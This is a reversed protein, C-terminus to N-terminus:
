DHKIIFYMAVYPPMVKIPKPESLGATGTLEGAISNGSSSTTVTEGGDTTISGALAATSNGTTGGDLVHYHDLETAGTTGAASTADIRHHHDMEETNNAMTVVVEDSLDFAGAGSVTHTHAASGAPPDRTLQADAAGNGGASDDVALEINLDGSIGHTHESDATDITIGLSDTDIDHTHAGVGTTGTHSHTGGAGTDGTLTHEHTDSENDSVLDNLTHTHTASNTDISGSVSHFHGGASYTYQGNGSGPFITTDDDLSLTHGHQGDASTDGSLTHAHAAEEGTTGDVSHTHASETGVTGTITHTHAGDSDTTGTHTHTGAAETDGTLTHTHTADENGVTGNITHTHAGDEDTTGDVSHTHASETNVGHTHIGASYTNMGDPPYVPSDVELEVTITGEIAHSHEIDNNETSITGNIAPAEFDTEGQVTLTESDTEGQVTLTETDTEGDVEHTHEHDVTWYETTPAEDVWLANDHPTNMDGGVLAVYADSNGWYDFQNYYLGVNYYNIGADGIWTASEKTDVDAAADPDAPKRMGTSSVDDIDHAHSGTGAIDVDHAHSAVALDHTVTHSHPVSTNGTDLDDTVSLTLDDIDWRHSHGGDAVTTHTHATGAGSTIDVPHTHAGDESTTDGDLDHTHNADNADVVVSSDAAGSGLIAHSHDSGTGGATFPHTHAGDESTTDGDLDHTHATGAGIEEFDVSHTHAGASLASGDVSHEHQGDDSDVLIGDIDWRHQHAGADNTQNGTFTHTHNASADNTDTTGALSHTHNANNADVSVYNATDGDDPGGLITHSHDSGTGSVAVTHTHGDDLETKSAADFQVTHTHTGANEIEVGDWGSDVTLGDIDWRHQHAGADGTTASIAVVATDDGDNTQVTPVHTHALDTATSVSDEGGGSDEDGDVWQRPGDTHIELDLDLDHDHSLDIVEGDDDYAASTTFDMAHAHSAVSLTHAHTHGSVEVTHSHEPISVDITHHHEPLQQSTLRSEVSGGVSGLSLPGPFQENYEPVGAGVVMRGSFNPLGFAGGFSSGLIGALKPYAGASASSGDCMLFGEPPTSSIWQFIAGVPIGVESSSGGLSSILKPANGEFQGYLDGAGDVYLRFMNSGIGRLTQQELSPVNTWAHGVM